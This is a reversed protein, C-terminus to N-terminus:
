RNEVVTLPEPLLDEAELADCVNKNVTKRLDAMFEPSVKSASLDVVPVLVKREPEGNDKENENMADHVTKKVTDWIDLALPSNFKGALGDSKNCEDESCLKPIIDSTDFGEFRGDNSLREEKGNSCQPCLPLKCDKGSETKTACNEIQNTHNMHHVATERETRLGYMVRKIQLKTQNMTKTNKLSKQQIFVSEKGYMVRKQDLQNVKVKM